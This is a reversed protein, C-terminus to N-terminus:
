GGITVIKEPDSEIDTGIRTVTLGPRLAPCSVSIFSSLVSILVDSGSSPGLGLM